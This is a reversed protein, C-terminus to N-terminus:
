GLVGIFAANRGSLDKGARRARRYSAFPHAGSPDRHCSTCYLLLEIREWGIGLQAAQRTLVETLHLYTAGGREEIAGRLHGADFEALCDSKVEFCCPQICPGFALRVRALSSGADRWQGLLNPLIGRAVGRWGAHLAAYTSREPDVALVPVCDAAKIALTCAAAGTARAGDVGRVRPPPDGAALGEPPRWGDLDLIERGHPQGLELPWPMARGPALRGALRQTSRSFDDHRPLAGSFGHFLGPLLGALTGAQLLPPEALPDGSARAAVTSM